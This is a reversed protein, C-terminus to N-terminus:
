EGRLIIIVADKGHGHVPQLATPLTVLYEERSFHPDSAVGIPWRVALWRVNALAKVSGQRAESTRM